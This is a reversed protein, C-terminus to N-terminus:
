SVDAVAIERRSLVWSGAAGIGLPYAIM